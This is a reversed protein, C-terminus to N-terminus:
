FAYIVHSRFALFLHQKFRYISHKECAWLSFNFFLWHNKLHYKKRIHRFILSQITTALLSLLALLRLQILNAMFLVIFCAIFYLMITRKHTNKSAKLSAATLSDLYVTYHEKDVLTVETLYLLHFIPISILMLFFLELLPPYLSDSMWISFIKHDSRLLWNSRLPNM